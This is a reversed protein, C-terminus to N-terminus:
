SIREDRQGGDSWDRARRDGSLNVIQDIEIATLHTPQDACGRETGNIVGAANHDGASPGSIPLAATM